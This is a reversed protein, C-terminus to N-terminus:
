IKSICIGFKNTNFLHPSLSADGLCLNLLSFRSAPFYLRHNLYVKVNVLVVARSSTFAGPCGYRLLFDRIVSPKYEVM